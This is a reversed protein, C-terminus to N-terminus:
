TKSRGSLFCFFRRHALHKGVEFSRQVYCQPCCASCRVIHQVCPPGTAYFCEQYSSSAQWDREVLGRLCFCILCEVALQQEFEFCHVRWAVMMHVARMNVDNQSHLVGHVVHAHRDACAHCVIRIM